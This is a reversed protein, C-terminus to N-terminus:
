AGVAFDYASHNLTTLGTGIKTSIHPSDPLLPGTISAINGEVVRCPAFLLLPLFALTCAGLIPRRGV